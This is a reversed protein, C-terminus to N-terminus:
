CLLGEQRLETHLARDLPRNTTVLAHGLDLRHCVERVERLFGALEDHYRRATDWGVHLDVEGRGELDALTVEGLCPPDLEEPALIQIVHAECGSASLGGVAQVWAPFLLDTLFVAMCRRGYRAAFERTCALPDLSEATELRAIAGIVNTLSARGREPRLLEHLRSGFALVGARNGDQLAIGALIAALRGAFRLKEPAGFRMSRSADLIVMLTLEKEEACLRILLRRLRLYVAWDIRRVDDGPQYERYDAFEIGGSQAPSRQEGTILGAVRRKAVLSLQGILQYDGPELLSGDM